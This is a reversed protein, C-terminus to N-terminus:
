VMNDVQSKVCDSVKWIVPVQIIDSITLYFRCPKSENRDFRWFSFQYCQEKIDANMKKM